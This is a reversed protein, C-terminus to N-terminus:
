MRERCDNVKMQLYETNMGHQEAYNLCASFYGFATRWQGMNYAQEAQVRKDEFDSMNSIHTYM